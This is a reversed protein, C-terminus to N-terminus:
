QVGYWTAAAANFMVKTCTRAAQTTMAPVGTALTQNTNAAFAVVNTAFAGNSVNCYAVIQGDSVPNPPLTITAALPQATVLLYGGSDVPLTTVSVGTTGAAGWTFSGSITLAVDPARGAVPNSCLAGSSPGGPGQGANWCENGTLSQQTVPQAWVLAAALAVGALLPAFLLHEKRM